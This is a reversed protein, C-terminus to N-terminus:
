VQNIITLSEESYSGFTKEHYFRTDDARYLPTDVFPALRYLLSGDCDRVHGIVYLRTGNEIEVLSHLPINHVKELNEQGFTKGTQKNIIDSIRLYHRPTNTM